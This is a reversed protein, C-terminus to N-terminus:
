GPMNIHAYLLIIMRYSHSSYLKSAYHKLNFSNGKFSLNALVDFTMEVCKINKGM